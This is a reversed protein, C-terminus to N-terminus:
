DARSQPQKTVQDLNRESGECELDLGRRATSDLARQRNM